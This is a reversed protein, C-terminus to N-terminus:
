ATRIGIESIFAFYQKQDINEEIIRFVRKIYLLIKKSIPTPNKFNMKKQVEM